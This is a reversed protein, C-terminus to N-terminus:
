RSFNRYPVRPPTQGMRNNRQMQQIAITAPSTVTNACSIVWVSATGATSALAGKGGSHAGCPRTPWTLRTEPFTSRRTEPPLVQASASNFSGIKEPSASRVSGRARPSIRIPAFVISRDLPLSISIALKRSPTM